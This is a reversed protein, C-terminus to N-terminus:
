FLGVSTDFSEQQTPFPPTCTLAAFKVFSVNVYRLTGDLENTFCPTSTEEETGLGLCFILILGV